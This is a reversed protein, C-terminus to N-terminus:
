MSPPADIKEKFFPSAEETAVQAEKKLQEGLSNFDTEIEEAIPATKKTSASQHLSASTTTATPKIDASTTAAPKTSDVTIGATRIPLKSEILKFLPDAIKKAKEMHPGLKECACNKYEIAKAKAIEAGKLINQDIVEKNALYIPPATFSLLTSVFAITWLSFASTLKYFFFSAFGARVTCEISTSTYLQQVQLEVKKLITVFHPAYYEASDGICNKTAPRFKTVFGTGTIIKGTYEALASALLAFTSLRFFLATLNVYKVLLLASLISGLTIASQKPDSWTFLNNSKKTLCKGGCCVNEGKTNNNNNCSM